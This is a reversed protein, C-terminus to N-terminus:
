LQQNDNSPKRVAYPPSDHQTDNFAVAPMM